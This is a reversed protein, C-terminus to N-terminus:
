LSPSITRASPSPQSHSGAARTMNTHLQGSHHKETGLPESTGSLQVERHQSWEWALACHCGTVWVKRRDGALGHRPGNQRRDRLQVGLTQKGATM